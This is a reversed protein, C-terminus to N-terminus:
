RRGAPARDIAALVARPRRVVDAAPIRLVTWGARRLPEEPAAGPCGTWGDVLLVVRAAPHAPGVGGGPLPWRVVWGGRLLGALRDRARAASREAVGALLRGATTSGASGRTREHAAQLEEGAFGRHLARDLLAPRGLAVATDLVTLPAATVALGRVGVVDVPDLDRRRVAIGPRRGAPRRCPRTVGVLPPPEALLGHWWAAAPGDLVAGAGGV